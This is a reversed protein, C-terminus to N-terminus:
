LVLKGDRYKKLLQSVYAQTCGFAEAVSVQTNGDLVCQVIKKKEEGNRRKPRRLKTEDFM